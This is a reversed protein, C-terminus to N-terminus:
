RLWPKDLPDSLLENELVHRYERIRQVYRVPERGRAYGYKLERYYAPDALLPLVKKIGKWKHPSLGKRRALVQADHLHARGVNYAALALFTRDPETVADVFRKKLRAMYEAGGFISQRPDLRDDVGVERATVRTLMMIGRVGTPSRARANWHSEQYGQAALLTFPLDYELAAQGFWERYEPFREDTRRIMVRTDVYDFEEFFGYYEERLDALGDRARLGKLWRGIAHDLAVSDPPMVWGLQQERSLNMPTLLEPFYRRNIDVITSDAVTCDLDRRWVRYLLEETTTEPVARWDPTPYGQRELQRLLEAYSSNAIVAVEDVEALEQLNEPQVNDRRCVVQQTVPQYPPGMRFRQRRNPTITIGAAALDGQEGEIADLVAGVSGKFRYDVTVGLWDAFANVLDHEPGAPDGESNIYWTTPANRTVVRLEGSAKIAELSRALGLSPALCAAALLVVTFRLQGNAANSPRQSM